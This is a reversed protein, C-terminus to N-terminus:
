RTVFQFLSCGYVAGEGNVNCRVSVDGLMETKRLPLKIIKESTDDSLGILQNESMNNIYIKNLHM